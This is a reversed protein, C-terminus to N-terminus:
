CRYFRQTTGAVSRREVIDNYLRYLIVIPDITARPPPPPIFEVDINLRVNDEVSRGRCISESSM